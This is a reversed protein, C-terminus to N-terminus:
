KVRKFILMIKNWEFEVPESGIRKSFEDLTNPDITDSDVKVSAFAWATYEEVNAFVYKAPDVSKYEVEFGCNFAISVYVDSSCMHFYEKAKTNLLEWFISPGNEACVFAFRGGVILNKYVNRFATEKDKIWHMVLNSFVIDYPGSPFSESSGDLFEINSRKGYKKRAIRIREKDPDVATVKGDPGVREALVNALFGTGCGLDLVNSGTLPSLKDVLGMGDDSQRSVHVKDYREALLSM